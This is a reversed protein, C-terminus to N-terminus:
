IKEQQIKLIQRCGIRIQSELGKRRTLAPLRHPSLVQYGGWMVLISFMAKHWCVAFELSLM